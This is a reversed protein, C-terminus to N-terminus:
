VMFGTGFRVTNVENAVVPNQLVVHVCYQVL